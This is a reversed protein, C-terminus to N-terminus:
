AADAAMVAMWNARLLLLLFRQQINQLLGHPQGEYPVFIIRALPSAGSERPITKEILAFL